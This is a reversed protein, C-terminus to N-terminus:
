AGTGFSGRSLTWSMLRISSSTAVDSQSSLWVDLRAEEEDDLMNRIDTTALTSLELFFAPQGDERLRKAQKRV